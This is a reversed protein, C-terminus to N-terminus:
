HEFALGAELDRQWVVAATVTQGTQEVRLKVKKPLPHAGEIVIKAGKSTVDKIVCRVESRDPLVVVAFRFAPKRDEGRKPREKAPPPTWEVPKATKISALRKSLLDKDKAM